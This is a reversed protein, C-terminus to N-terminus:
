LFVFWMNLFIVHRAAVPHRLYPVTSDGIMFRNCMKVTLSMQNSQYSLRRVFLWLKRRAKSAAEKIGNEGSFGPICAWVAGHTSCVGGM